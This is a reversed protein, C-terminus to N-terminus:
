RPRNGSPSVSLYSALPQWAQLLKEFSFAANAPSTSPLSVPEIGTSALCYKRYFKCAASGNCFVAQIETKGVLSAIDNPVPNKISSDSAGLIECSELTDWLALGSSLVLQKKQPISSPLASSTLAALLPWFRNQPHYYYFGAEFSKPSPYTGLILAKSEPSYVPPFGTQSGRHQM